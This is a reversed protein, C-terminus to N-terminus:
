RYASKRIISSGRELRARAGERFPARMSDTQRDTRNHCPHRAATAAPAWGRYSRPGLPCRGVTWSSKHRSRFNVRKHIKYNQNENENLNNRIEARHVSVSM